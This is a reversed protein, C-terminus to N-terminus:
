TNGGHFVHDHTEASAIMRRDGTNDCPISAAVRKRERQRM